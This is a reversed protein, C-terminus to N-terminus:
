HCKHSERQRFSVCAIRVEVAPSHTYAAARMKRKDTRITYSLEDPNVIVPRVTFPNPLLSDHVGFLNDNLVQLIKGSLFAPSWNVMGDPLDLFKARIHVGDYRRFFGPAAAIEMELFFNRLVAGLFHPAPNLILLRQATEIRRVVLGTVSPHAVLFSVNEFELIAFRLFHVVIHNRFEVFLLDSDFEQNEFRPLQSNRRLGGQLKEM